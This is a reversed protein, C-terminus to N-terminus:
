IVSFSVVVFFFKEFGFFHHGHCVTDDRTMPVITAGGDTDYRTVPTGSSGCM